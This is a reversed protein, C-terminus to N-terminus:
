TVDITCIPKQTTHSEVFAGDFKPDATLVFTYRTGAGLLDYGHVHFEQETVSTVTLVLTAGAPVKVSTVAGDAACSKTVTSPKTVPKTTPPATPPVTTPAPKVTTAPAATTAPPLTTAGPKLTTTSGPKVTTASSGPATTGAAVATSGSSGTAATSGTSDTPVGSTTAGTDTQSTDAPGADTVVTTAFSGDPQVGGAEDGSGGCGVLSVAALSLVLTCRRAFPFPTM